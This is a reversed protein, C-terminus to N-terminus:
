LLLVHNGTQIAIHNNTLSEVLLIYFECVELIQVLDEIVKWEDSDLEFKRLKLKKDATIADIPQRYWIAFAMM